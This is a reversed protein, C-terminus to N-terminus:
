WVTKILGSNIIKIDCTLCPIGLFFAVGAIIRDHIEPILSLNDFQLIDDAQFPVFRFQGANKLQQYEIAFNLPSGAKLNLFYLEAVVISPIFLIGQGQASDQFVQMAAPSLKSSQTLYWYLAHTDVVHDAV